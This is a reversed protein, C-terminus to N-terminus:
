RILHPDSALKSISYVCSRIILVCSNVYDDQRQDILTIPCISIMEVSWYLNPGQPGRAVLQDKKSAARTWVRRNKYVVHHSVHIGVTALRDSCHTLEAGCVLRLDICPLASGVDPFVLVSLLQTLLISHTASAHIFSQSTSMCKWDYHPKLGETLVTAVQVEPKCRQKSFIGFSLREWSTHVVLEIM